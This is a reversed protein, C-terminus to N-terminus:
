DKLLFYKKQKKLINLMKGINPLLGVNSISELNSELTFHFYNLNIDKSSINYKEFQM